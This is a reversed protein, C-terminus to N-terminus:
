VMADATMKVYSDVSLVMLYRSLFYTFIDVLVGNGDATMKVDFQSIIGYKSWFYTFIDM